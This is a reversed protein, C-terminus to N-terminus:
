RHKKEKLTLGEIYEVLDGPVGRQATGRSSCPSYINNIVSNAASPESHLGDMTLIIQDLINTQAHVSFRTPPEVLTMGMAPYGRLFIRCYFMGM